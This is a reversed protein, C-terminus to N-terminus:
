LARESPLNAGKMAVFAGLGVFERFELLREFIPIDRRLADLEGRLDARFRHFEADSQAPVRRLRLM